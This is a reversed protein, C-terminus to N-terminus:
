YSFSLKHLRPSFVRERRRSAPTPPEFGRVGVLLILSKPKQLVASPPEVSGGLATRKTRKQLVTSLHNSEM